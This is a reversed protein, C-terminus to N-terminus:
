AEELLPEASRPYVTHRGTSRPAKFSQPRSRMFGEAASVLSAVGIVAVVVDMWGFSGRYLAGATPLAFLIGGAIAAGWHDANRSRRARILRSEILEYYKPM